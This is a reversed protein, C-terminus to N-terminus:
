AINEQLLNEKPSKDSDVDDKTDTQLTSKLMRMMM